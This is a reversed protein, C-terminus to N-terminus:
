PVYYYHGDKYEAYDQDILFTLQDRIKNDDNTIGYCRPVIEEFMLQKEKKLNRMILARLIFNTELDTRHVVGNPNNKLALVPLPYQISNADAHFDHRITFIDHDIDIKNPLGSKKLLGNVGCTLSHLISSLIQADVKLYDNLQKHTTNGRQIEQLVIWQPIKMHFTFRQDKSFIAEIDVSSLHPILHISRNDYHSHYTKIINELIQSLPDPLPFFTNAWVTHQTIFNKNSFIHIRTKISFHFNRSFIVSEKCEQIVNELRFTQAGGLYKKIYQIIQLEKHLDTSDDYVLRQLLKQGYLSIFGEKDKIIDLIFGIKRNQFLYSIVTTLFKGNNSFTEIRKKLYALLPTTDIQHSLIELNEFIDIMADINKRIDYHESLRNDYYRYFSEKMFDFDISFLWTIMEGDFCQMLHLFSREVIEYFNSTRISKILEELLDIHHMSLKQVFVSLYNKENFFYNMVHTVDRFTPLHESYFSEIGRKVSLTIRDMAFHNHHYIALLKKFDEIFDESIDHSRSLSETLYRSCFLDMDNYLIDLFLTKCISELTPNSRIFSCKNLYRFSINLNQAFFIYNNLLIFFEKLDCENSQLKESIYHLMKGILHEHLFYLRKIHKKNTTKDNICSKYVFTYIAMLDKINNKHGGGDKRLTIEDFFHNYYDEVQQINDM